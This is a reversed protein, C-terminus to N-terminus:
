TAAPSLASYVDVTFDDYGLAIEPWLIDELARGAPPRRWASVFVVEVARGVIRRGVYAETLEDGIEPVRQRLLEQLAIDSGLKSFRGCAVRLAAPEGDGQRLIPEDVEYHRRDIV